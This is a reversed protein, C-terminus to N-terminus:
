FIEGVRLTAREAEARVDPDPDTRAIARLPGRVRPDSIEGLAWVAELRVSAEPDDDAVQVLSNIARRSGIFGLLQASHGRTAPTKSSLGVLLAPVAAEGLDLLAIQAANRRPTLEEDALGAVLAAMARPTAIGALAIAAPRPTSSTNFYEELRPVALPSGIEALRAAAQERALLDDSELIDLLADIEEPTAPGQALIPFPATLSLTVVLLLFWTARKPLRIM